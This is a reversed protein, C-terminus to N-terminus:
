LDRTRYLRVSVLASIATLVVAVGLMALTLAMLGGSTSLAAVADDLRAMIQEGALQLVFIPVLVILVIVIPYVRMVRQAGFRFSCPVLAGVLLSGIALSSTLSAGIFAWLSADAVLGFGRGDSFGQVLMTVSSAALFTAVGVAGLAGIAVFRGLVVDRRALPLAMRYASWGNADDMVCLNMGFVMISYITVFAVASVLVGTGQLSLCVALVAFVFVQLVLLHRFSVLDIRASRIIGSM